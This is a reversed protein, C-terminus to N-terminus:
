SCDATAQRVRGSASLILAKGVKGACFRWTSNTGRAEGRQNFVSKARGVTVTDSKLTSGVRLVADDAFTNGNFVLWGRHWEGKDGCGNDDETRACVSVTDGSTVAQNRAYSLAQQVSRMDSSVRSSEILGQWAPVGFATIIALVTITVLLEILTFGLSPYTPHHM